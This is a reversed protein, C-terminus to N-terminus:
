RNVFPEDHVDNLIPILSFSPVLDLLQNWVDVDVNTERDSAKEMVVAVVQELRRSDAGARRVDLTVRGVDVGLAREVGRPVALAHRQVFDLSAVTARYAEQFTSRTELRVQVCLSVILM